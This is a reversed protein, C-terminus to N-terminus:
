PSARPPAAGVRNAVATVHPGSSFPLAVPTSRLQTHELTPATSLLPTLAPPRHAATCGARRSVFSPVSSRFRLASVPDVSEGACECILLVPNLLRLSARFVCVLMACVLSM